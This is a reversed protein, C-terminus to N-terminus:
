DLEPRLRLLRPHEPDNVVTAPFGTREFHEAVARLAAAPAPAPNTASGPPGRHYLVEPVHVIGRARESVRLAIDHDCAPALDARIGGVEDLTARRFVALRGTYPYTRLRDPSWDPKLRPDSRIGHHLEDEDTYVFDVDETVVALVRELAEPELRDGADM